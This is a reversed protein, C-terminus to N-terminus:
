ISRRRRFWGVMGTGLASLLVAGPAPAHVADAPGDGTLQLTTNKTTIKIWNLGGDTDKITGMLQGDDKLATLLAGSNNPGDLTLTKTKGNSFGNLMLGTEIDDLVLMLNNYDFDGWASDGDYITLTVAIQDISNLNMYDTGDFNWPDTTIPTSGIYGAAGTGPATATVTVSAQAVGGLCAALLLAILAKKM